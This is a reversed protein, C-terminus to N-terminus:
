VVPVSSFTPTVAFLSVLLRADATDFGLQKAM